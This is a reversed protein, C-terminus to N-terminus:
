GGRFIACGERLSLFSRAADTWSRAADPRSEAATVALARMRRPDRALKRVGRALGAASGFLLGNRGPEIFPASYAARLALVPLGFARAEHFAMGFAEAPSPSILVSSKSYEAGLEEPPVFGLHVVRRGLLPHAAVERLCVAATEPEIDTRGAIRILLGDDERIERGLAELFSPVGKGRTLSSVILGSFGEPIRRPGEPRVCLAPPVLLIPKDTFGRARLRDRTAPGTALFGAARGLWRDETRRLAKAPGPALGPEESPLWHIIFFVRDDPGFPDAAALGPLYLSDIWFETRPPFAGPVLRPLTATEFPWGEAELARLLFRNYLDGGSPPRGPPVVFVARAPAGAEPRPAEPV